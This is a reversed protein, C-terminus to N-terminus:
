ATEPSLRAHGGRGSPGLGHEIEDEDDEAEGKEPQRGGVGGGAVPHSAGAM